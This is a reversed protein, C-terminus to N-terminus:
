GLDSLFSRVRDSWALVGALDSVVDVTAQPLLSALEDATAVPHTPDGTWALILAPQGLTAMRDREPLQATAAGRFVRALRTTDWARMADARLEALDPVDVFPDAPPLQQAAEILPEVGPGEVISAMQEYLEAQGARGEWGTPPIMLVLGRVRDPDQLAAHLATACGMSAGGAVYTGVDLADALARQDAALSAWSYGDPEATSESEGHGRADYRLVRNGVRIDAWRILSRDDEDAMSSTLGHGWVVDPGTGGRQYALEVGRIAVSGRELDSGHGM